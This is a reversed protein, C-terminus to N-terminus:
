TMFHVLNLINSRQTNLDVTTDYTSYQSQYKIPVSVKVLLITKPTRFEIFNTKSEIDVFLGVIMMKENIKKM